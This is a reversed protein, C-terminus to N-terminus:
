QQLHQTAIFDVAIVAVNFCIQIRQISSLKIETNVKCKRFNEKWIYLEVYEGLPPKKFKKKQLM